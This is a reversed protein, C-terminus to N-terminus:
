IPEHMLRNPLEKLDFVMNHKSLMEMIALFPDKTEDTVFFEIISKEIHLTRAFAIHDYSKLLGIVLFCNAPPVHAQFYVGYM